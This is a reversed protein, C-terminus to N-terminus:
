SDQDAGALADHQSATAELPVGLQHPGVDAVVHLRQARRVVGAVPKIIALRRRRRARAVHGRVPAGRHHEIGVDGAVTRGHRLELPAATRRGRDDDVAVPLAEGVLRQGVVVEGLREAHEVRALMSNGLAPGPKCIKSWLTRSLAASGTSTDRALGVGSQTSLASVMPSSAAFIPMSGSASSAVTSRNLSCAASPSSGSKSRVSTPSM